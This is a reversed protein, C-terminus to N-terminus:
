ACVSSVTMRTQGGSLCGKGDRGTARSANLFRYFDHWMLEFAAWQAGGGAEGKRTSGGAAPAAVTAEAPAARRMDHHVNRPSLCGMALWPALSAVGHARSVGSSGSVLSALLRLAETEGGRVPARTQTQQTQQQQQTAPPCLQEMTPIDGCPPCAAPLRRVRTPAPLAQPVACQVLAAKFATFSPPMGAPTVQFPLEERGHLTGGWWTRLEAGQSHLADSVREQLHLEEADAGAHCFVSAAGVLQALSRLEREPTGWRVLLDSGLQRLRDRLDSVCDHLFAARCPPTSTLLRVAVQSQARGPCRGRTRGGAVCRHTGYRTFGCTQGGQRQQSFHRSDFVFM